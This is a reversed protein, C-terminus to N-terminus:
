CVGKVPHTARNEPFPPVTARRVSAVVAMRMAFRPCKRGTQVLRVSIAVLRLFSTGTAIGRVGGDTKRFATMTARTLAQCVEAPASGDAFDQAALFLLQFLEGDVLCM